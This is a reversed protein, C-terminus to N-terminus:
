SAWEVGLVGDDDGITVTARIFGGALASPLWLKADPWMRSFPIQTKPWWQPILEDSPTPEGEFERVLFAHSRQSLHPRTPFPYHLTAIPILSTEEAVLTTEEFLERVAAQRLSEGSEVKGGPGVVRGQGLGTKKEGLLIHETGESQLLPYVVVVDYM